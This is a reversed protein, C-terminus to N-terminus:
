GTDDDPGRLVWEGRRRLFAHYYVLASIMVVLNAILSPRGVEPDLWNTYIVYSLAALGLLPLLPFLPMRYAAHNSTGRWRGVLAALSVAIYTIAFGAGTLVLLFELDVFCVAIASLGAALTAVWPSHFRMHTITFLANVRSTWANDRGTSYFFRGNQLIIALVANVIALAVSFSIIIDFADGGRARLFDGFANQSTLLSRLDSTGLLVATTPVLEAVVTIVLAWLITRAVVRPAEHMEETFYCAAGYGNFAYIAVSTALGIAALPTTHLSGGNMVVPHLAVESLPRAVHLFGLATLAALASLELLLFVGTVWANTRIHLIGSLTALAIIAVAVIRADLGPFIPALYTGAGLALVAPGLMNGVVTVGLVVFGAAPGMTRGVMCYEGGAIPFASSLEAYVYAVPVALLAAFAMALFAGTGAQSILQPVAVFVSSAPTVGSLTLLLAGVVRMSRKLARPQPAQSTAAATM